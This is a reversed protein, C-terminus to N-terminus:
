KSSQRFFLYRKLGISLLEVFMRGAKNELVTLMTWGKVTQFLLKWNLGCNSRELYLSKGLVSISKPGFCVKWTLVSCTEKSDKIFVCDTQKKSDLWFGKLMM